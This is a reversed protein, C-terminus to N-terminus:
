IVGVEESVALPTLCIIIFRVSFFYIFSVVVIVVVVAVAVLVSNACEMFNM